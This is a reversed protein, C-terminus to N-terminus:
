RSDGPTCVLSVRDWAGGAKQCKVGKLLPMAFFAALLAALFALLVVRRRSRM